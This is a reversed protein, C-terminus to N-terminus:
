HELTPSYVPIRPRMQHEPLRQIKNGDQLDSGFAYLTSSVHM